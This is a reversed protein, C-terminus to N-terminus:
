QQNLEELVVGGSGVSCRVETKRVLCDGAEAEQPNSNYVVGGGGRSVEKEFLLSLEM